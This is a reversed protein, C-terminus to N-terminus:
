LASIVEALQAYETQVAPLLTRANEMNHTRLAEVLPKVVDSLRHFSLNGAVGKLTHAHRFALSVDGQEMAECLQPFTTDQPFRRVFKEFLDARGSFRAIGEACDVGAANLKELDM